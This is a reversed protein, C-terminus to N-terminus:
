LPGSILLISDGDAGAAEGGVGVAAELVGLPWVPVCERVRSSIKAGFLGTQLKTFFVM